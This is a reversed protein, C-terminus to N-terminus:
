GIDSRVEVLPRDEVAALMNPTWVKLAQLRNGNIGGKFSFCIISM